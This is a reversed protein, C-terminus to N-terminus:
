FGGGSSRTGNGYIATEIWAHYTAICGVKLVCWHMTATSRDIWEKSSPKSITSRPDNDGYSVSGNVHSFYVRNSTIRTVKGSKGCWNVIQEFTWLVTGAIKASQASHNYWCKEGAAAAAATAPAAVTTSTQTVTVAAAATAPAPKAYAQTAGVGLIAAAITLTILLRAASSFAKM